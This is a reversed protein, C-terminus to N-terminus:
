RRQFNLIKISLAFVFAFLVAFGVAVTAVVGLFKHEYGFYDRLFDEVTEDTEMMEKVDGFQSAVLGYLTWALPCAWYFWRWWIPIRASVHQNPTLAVSMMGYYTFYLFTVYMFFLYWLFKAVTWEFGVMVYVIIGYVMAQVFVYPVEILVQAVAYPFASYMGAARERYFVTREVAVVPQVVSSNKVGLFLVAAYMSGMADFLDQQKSMYLESKRYIDAFDIGLDGERVSATVELMWTAPNYGDKIKSVRNANRVVDFAKFIDISPQHITCVVTRGTDVTNRVTRMVIAAARTDLGSAVGCNSTKIPEVGCIGDSGVKRTESNVEPSLCSLRLWAPYLLSEYVTVHPSHIDNQECYSSIRAFTEQNKPFGSIKIRGDIYGGTKRGALVDMLTTKGAGSVGMLATLVGPRFAGIVRNLLVLKDELVGQNKMEEPMDVSCTIENFNIFHPEFRIIMVTKGNFNIDAAAKKKLSSSGFLTNGIKIEHDGSEKNARRSSSNELSYDLPKEQGASMKMSKLNKQNVLTSSGSNLIISHFIWPVESSCSWPTGNFKPSGRSLVFGGLSFLIILSFSSFTSAVILDREVNPDFGIVYYTIFVWIAVETLTIPIKVIWAPIAYAWPPFFLLNRQKYFVPLKVVTMSLESMGNFMITALTFFLAGVYVGGNTVSDRHMETQLFVTMALLAMM